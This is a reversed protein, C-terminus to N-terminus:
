LDKSNNGRKPDNNLDEPDIVVTAGDRSKVNLRVKVKEGPNLARLSKRAVRDGAAYPATPTM